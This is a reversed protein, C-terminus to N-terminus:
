NSVSFVQMNFKANKTALSFRDIKTFRFHIKHQHKPAHTPLSDKNKGLPLFIKKEAASLWSSLFCDFSFLLELLPAFCSRFLRLILLFCFLERFLPFSAHAMMMVTRRTIMLLMEVAPAAAADDDDDDNYVPWLVSTRVDRLSEFAAVLFVVVSPAAFRSFDPGIKLVCRRKHSRLLCNLTLLFEM